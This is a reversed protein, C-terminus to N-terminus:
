FEWTIRIIVYFVTIYKLVYSAITNLLMMTIQIQITKAVKHRVTHFERHLSYKPKRVCWKWLTWLDVPIKKWNFWKEKRLELHRLTVYGFNTREKEKFVVILINLVCLEWICFCYVHLLSLFTHANLVKCGFFFLMKKNPYIGVLNPKRCKYNALQFVPSAASHFLVLVSQFGNLTFTVLSLGPLPLLSLSLFFFPPCISLKLHSNQFTKNSLTPQNQPISWQTLYQVLVPFLNKLNKHRGLTYEIQQRSLILINEGLNKSTSM